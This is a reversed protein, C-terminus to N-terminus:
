QDSDSEASSSSTDISEKKNSKLTNKVSSVNAENQDTTTLEPANSSYDDITTKNGNKSWLSTSKKGLDEQIKLIQGYQNTYNYKKPDVPTFGTPIYFRLLNKNNLTDSLSLETNVKERDKKIEDKVKQSPHTLIKGTSNQYITNGVVTYKPTIFDENRFAVVQDHKSSFLDTGFQIYDRSDIGLLHLLTPLVDIEGGYQTQVGGDKTGPIHIMFPVRQMQTNDFDSWTSSSKGLLSALKLNRTDSIGYHDGYLIIISNDYLGSKKLYEFFEQVAQDLYHATVFYNNISADSTNAKDFSTNQDDLAFPFHNSVTVFKAYFPQQLRELYKISDHFLLKDKLGYETLNNADTNYYSSDFFYNYGLNKYVNNRNWFSGSNGHFVASTYGQSQDLIAPAGEFTNDTGLISFLSGQSLGYTSTELMNEADSTKGQRVQNFFNAFSYTEKSNYLSNLFPTVEKDNLKYNILFQQFSELHIVIVNRGKAIGYMKSNPEAYHNRTFNIINNLDSSGAKNRVQSNRATKLGDYVMYTDIGLYKVLYNRDFTRSLLQPRSIEGLTINLVLCFLSFSTLALAQVRPIPRKDLHLFGTIFGLAVIVIDVVIIIDQPELLAFSSGSLGQSVTSYGFITNITMFDTFERYYIVNFMLLATNAIYILGMFIYSPITRKIYLAIGLLLLTTALPNVLLVFYQYIGKVGLHFDIFYVLITKLWFLFVLLSFFGWRTNLFKKIRLLNM